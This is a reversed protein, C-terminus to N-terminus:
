LSERGSDWEGRRRRGEREREKLLNVSNDRGKSSSRRAGCLAVSCTPLARPHSLIDDVEDQYHRLRLPGDGAKDRGENQRSISIDRSYRVGSCSLLEHYRTCKEDNDRVKLMLNMSIECHFNM